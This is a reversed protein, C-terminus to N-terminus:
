SLSILPRQRHLHLDPIVARRPWRPKSVVFVLSYSAICRISRLVHWAHRWSAAGAYSARAYDACHRSAYHAHTNRTYSMMYLTSSSHCVIVGDQSMENCLNDERSTGIALFCRDQVSVGREILSLSQLLRAPM